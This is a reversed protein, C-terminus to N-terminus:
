WIIAGEHNISITSTKGSQVVTVTAAVTSGSLQTFVVPSAQALGTITVNKGAPLAENTTATPDCVTGRFLMYNPAVYCVGWSSNFINAMSRSRARLLLSVITDRESRSLAGRYSDMSMFLGVGMLMSLIAVVIVIEILTFGRRINNLSSTSHSQM